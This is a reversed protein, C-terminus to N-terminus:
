FDGRGMGEVVITNITLSITIRKVIKTDIAQPDLIFDFSGDNVLPIKAYIDDFGKNSDDTSKDNDM